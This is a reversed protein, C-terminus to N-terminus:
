VTAYAANSNPTSNGSGSTASVYMAEAGQRALDPNSRIIDVGAKAATEAMQKAFAPNSSLFDKIESQADSRQIDEFGPYRWIIYANFGANAIMALGVVQGFLSMSFLITGVFLMFVCRAKASYMFGFNLAILKSVQKLHTEFCCLLCSFMVLYLALVGTTASQTTLLSLLSVLIMVVSIGLNIVRTYTIMRPIGPHAETTEATSTSAEGSGDNSNTQKTASGDQLWPPNSLKSKNNSQGGGTVTAPPPMRNAAENDINNDSFPNEDYQSSAWSM